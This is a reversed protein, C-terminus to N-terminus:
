KCGTSQLSFKRGSFVHGANGREVHNHGSWCTDDFSKQARHANKLLLEDLRLLALKKNSHQSREEQSIASLGTPLHTVRIASETKNAHQGGPGSSRMREIKIEGANWKTEPVPKLVRVSVFWNKRKHRPRFMSTGIWQVSGEWSELFSSIDHDGEVALLASSLTDRYKGPTAEILKTRLRNQSAIGQLYKVLQFVVWCCEEPGRGSTIQLWSTM